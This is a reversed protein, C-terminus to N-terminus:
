KGNQLAYAGASQAKSQLADSILKKTQELEKGVLELRPPRVRSNGIGV